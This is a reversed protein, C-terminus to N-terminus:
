SRLSPWFVPLHQSELERYGGYLYLAYINLFERLCASVTVSCRAVGHERVAPWHSSDVQPAFKPSSYFPLDSYALDQLHMSSSFLPQDADCLELVESDDEEM